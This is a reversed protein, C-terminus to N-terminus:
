ENGSRLKKLFGGLQKAIDNAEREIVEVEQDSILQDDRALDFGAVVENMSAISMELFRAFDKDSLKASGEAINLSISILARDIQRTLSQQNQPFELIIRRCIRRFKKARKYVDFEKFRFINM